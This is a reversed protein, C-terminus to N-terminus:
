SPTSTTTSRPRRSCPAELRRREFHEDGDITLLTRGFFPQSEQHSGQRFSRSRLIEDIEAYTTFRQLGVIHPPPPMDRITPQRSHM